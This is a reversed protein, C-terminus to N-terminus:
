RFLWQIRHEPFFYSNSDLMLRRLAPSARKIDSLDAFFSEVPYNNMIQMQTLHNAIEEVVAERGSSGFLYPRDALTGEIYRGTSSYKPYVNLLNNLGSLESYLGQQRNASNRRYIMDSSAGGIASHWKFRNTMLEGLLRNLIEDSMKKLNSLVTKKEINKETPDIGHRELFSHIEASYKPNTWVLTETVYEEFDEGLKQIGSKALMRDAVMLRPNRAMPGFHAIDHLFPDLASITGNETSLGDLPLLGAARMRHYDETTMHVSGPTYGEPVTDTAKLWRVEGGPGVFSRVPRYIQDETLGHRARLSEILKDLRRFVEGPEPVEMQSSSFRFGLAQLFKIQFEGDAKASKYHHGLEVINNRLIGHEAATYQSASGARAQIQFLARCQPGQEIGHASLGFGFLIVATLFRSSSQVFM